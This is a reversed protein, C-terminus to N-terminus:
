EIIYKVGSEIQTALIEAGYYTPNFFGTGSNSPFTFLDKLTAM